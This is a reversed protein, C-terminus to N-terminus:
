KLVQWHHSRPLTQQKFPPDKLSGHVKAPRMAGQETWMSVVRKM